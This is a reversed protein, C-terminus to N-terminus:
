PHILLQQTPGGILPAPYNSLSFMGGIVQLQLALLLAREELTQPPRFKWGPTSWVTECFQRLYQMVGLYAIRGSPYGNIYLMWTSGVAFAARAAQTSCDRSWFDESAVFTSGVGTYAGTTAHIGSFNRVFHFEPHSGAADSAYGALHMLSGSQKEQSSMEAGLRQRLSEALGQLSPQSTSAYSAVQRPIWTEMSEGNVTFAGALSLGANLYPVEYVKTGTGAAGQDSSLNSDAM